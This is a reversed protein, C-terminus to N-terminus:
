VHPWALSKAPHCLTGSVVHSVVLFSETVGVQQLFCAQPCIDWKLASSSYHSNNLTAVTDGSCRLGRTM